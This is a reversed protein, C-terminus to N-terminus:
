CRGFAQELEPPFFVDKVGEVALVASPRAKAAEPQLCFFYNRALLQAGIEARKISLEAETAVGSVVAAVCALLALHLTASGTRSKM